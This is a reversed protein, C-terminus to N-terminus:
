DALLEDGDDADADQQGAQEAEREGAGPHGAQGPQHPAAQHPDEQDVVHRVRHVRDAVVEAAAPEGGGVLRPVHGPEGDRGEALRPVVVVVGEGPGGVVAHLPVLDVDAGHEDPRQFLQVEGPLHDPDVHLPHRELLGPEAPDAGARGLGARRGQLLGRRGREGLPPVPVQDGDGVDLLPMASQSASERRPARPDSCAWLPCPKSRYPQSSTSDLASPMAAPRRAAPTRGPTVTALMRVLETSTTLPSNATHSAPPASAESGTGVRPIVGASYPRWSAVSVPRSYAGSSITSSRNVPSIGSSTRDPSGTRDHSDSSVPPGGISVDGGPSSSTANMWYEEPLVLTGLPQASVGRAIAACSAIMRSIALPTGPSSVTAHQSGSDCSMPTNPQRSYEQNWSKSRTSDVGSRNMNEGRVHNRSM